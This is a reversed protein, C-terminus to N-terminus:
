SKPKGGNEREFEQLGRIRSLTHIDQLKQHLEAAEQVRSNFDRPQSWLNAAPALSSFNGHTLRGNLGWHVDWDGSFYVLIPPAGVGFHYWQHQGVALHVLFPWGVPPKRYEPIGLVPELVLLCSMSGPVWWTGKKEMSRKPVARVAEEKKPSVLLCTAGPHTLM